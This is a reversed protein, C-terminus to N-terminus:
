ASLSKAVWTRTFTPGARAASVAIHRCTVPLNLGAAGKGRWIALSGHGPMPQAGSAGDDYLFWLSLVLPCETADNVALRLPIRSEDMFVAIQAENWCGNMQATGKTM